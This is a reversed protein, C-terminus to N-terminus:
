IILSSWPYLNTLVSLCLTIGNPDSLIEIVAYVFLRIKDPVQAYPVIGGDISISHKECNIFTM